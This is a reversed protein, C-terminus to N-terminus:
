HTVSIERVFASYTPEIKAWDAPYTEFLSRAEIFRNRTISWDLLMLPAWRFLDRAHGVFEASQCGNLLEQLEQLRAHAHM